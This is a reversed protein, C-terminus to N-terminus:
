DLCTFLLLSHYPPVPLGLLSLPTM